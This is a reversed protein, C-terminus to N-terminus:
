GSEPVRGKGNRQCCHATGHVRNNAKQMWALAHNNLEQLSRFQLGRFFNNRIYRISNEVKGKTQPRYPWCLRVNFGYYESCRMFEPNFRSESAKKRYLVVQKLNDYLCESPIGGTYRFANMHLRELSQTGIDVTFEVYREGGYWPYVLIGITKGAKGWM